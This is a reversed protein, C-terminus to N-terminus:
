IGRCCSFNVGKNRLYALKKVKSPSTRSLTDKHVGFVMNDKFLLKMGTNVIVNNRVPQSFDFVGNQGGM